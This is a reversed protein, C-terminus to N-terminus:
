LPNAGVASWVFVPSGREDNEAAGYTMEQNARRREDDFYYIGRRNARRSGNM